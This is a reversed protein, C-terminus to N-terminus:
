PFDSSSSSSSLCDSDDTTSRTVYVTRHKKKHKKKSRKSKKKTRKIRRQDRSNDSSDTTVNNARRTNSRTKHSQNCKKGFPCFINNAMFECIKRGDSDFVPKCARGNDKLKTLKQWSCNKNLHGKHGSLYCPDNPGKGKGTKRRESKAAQVSASAHNSSASGFEDHVHKARMGEVTQMKDTLKEFSDSLDNSYAMTVMPAYKQDSRVLGELAFVKMLPLPIPATMQPYKAAERGIQQVRDMFAQVSEPKSTSPDKKRLSINTLERLLAALCQAHTHGFKTVLKSLLLIGNSMELGSCVHTAGVDLHDVIASWISHNAKIWKKSRKVLKKMRRKTMTQIKSGMTDYYRRFASLAQKPQRLMQFYTDICSGKIDGWRYSNANFYDTNKEQLEAIFAAGGDTLKVYHNPAIANMADKDNDKCPLYFYRHLPFIGYEPRNEEWPLRNFATHQRDFYAELLESCKSSSNLETELKTRTKSFTSLDIKWDSKSRSSFHEMSSSSSDDDSRSLGDPDAHTTTTASAEAESASLGSKSRSSRRTSM